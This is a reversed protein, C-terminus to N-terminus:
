QIEKEDISTQAVMGLPAVECGKIELAAERPLPLQWGRSAEDKLMSILKAEHGRASKHNGRALNARVDALRDSDSIERLPVRGKSIREQFRPWLPHASLLPALLETPRFEIGADPRQVAPGSPRRRPRPRVTQAGRPQPPRRRADLRLSVGDRPHATPRLAFYHCPCRGPTTRSDPVALRREPASRRCHCWRHSSVPFRAHRTQSPQHRRTTPTEPRCHARWPTTPRHRTSPPLTAGLGSKTEHRTTAPQRSIRPTPSTAPRLNTRTPERPVTEPPLNRYLGPRGVHRRNHFEATSREQDFAWQSPQAVFAPQFYASASPGLKTKKSPPTADSSPRRMRARCQEIWARVATTQETTLAVHSASLFCSKVCKGSLHWRCCMNPIPGSRVHDLFVQWTDNADRPFLDQQPNTVADAPQGRRGARASGAAAVPQSDGKQDVGRGLREKLFDCAPFVFAGDELQQRTSRFELLAPNIEDEHEVGACLVLYQQM